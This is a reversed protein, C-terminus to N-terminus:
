FIVENGDIKRLAKTIHIPLTQGKTREYASKGLLEHITPIAGPLKPLNVIM